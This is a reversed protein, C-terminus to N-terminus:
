RNWDKAGARKIFRDFTAIAAMVEVLGSSDADAIYSKEVSEAAESSREFSVAGTIRFQVRFM